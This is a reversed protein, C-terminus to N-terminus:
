LTLVRACRQTRSYWVDCLCVEISRQWRTIAYGRIWPKCRGSFFQFNVMLRSIDYIYM